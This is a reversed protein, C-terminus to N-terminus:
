LSGRFKQTGSRTLTRPEKEVHAHEELEISPKTAGRLNLRNGSEDRVSIDRNKNQPKLESLVNQVDQSFQEKVKSIGIIQMGRHWERAVVKVSDSFLNPSFSEVFSVVLKSQLLCICLAAVMFCRVVLKKNTSTEIGASLQKVKQQEEHTLKQPKEKLPKKGQAPKKSKQAV